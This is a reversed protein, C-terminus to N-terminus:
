LFLNRMLRRSATGYCWLMSESECLLDRYRSLYVIRAYELDFNWVCYNVSLCNRISLLGSPKGAVFFTEWASMHPDVGSSTKRHRGASSPPVSVELTEWVTNFKAAPLLTPGVLLNGLLQRGSCWHVPRSESLSDQSWTDLSCIGKCRVLLNRM